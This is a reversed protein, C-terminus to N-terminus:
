ERQRQEREEQERQLRASEAVRYNRADIEAQRARYEAQQAPPLAEWQVKDLGMPYSACGALLLILTLPAHFLTYSRYAHPGILIEAV